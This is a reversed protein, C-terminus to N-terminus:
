GKAKFKKVASGQQQPSKKEQPSSLNNQKNKIPRRRKKSKKSASPSSNNAKFAVNTKITKRSANVGPVKDKNLKAKKKGNKDVKLNELSKKGHQSKLSVERKVPNKKDITQRIQSTKQPKKSEIEDQMQRLEQLFSQEAEELEDEDTSSEYLNKYSKKNKKQLDKVKDKNDIQDVELELEQEEEDEEEEEDDDAEEGEEEKELEKENESDDEEMNEDEEDSENDTDDDELEEDEYEEQKKTGKLEKAKKKKVNEKIPKTVVTGDKFVKVMCNPYTTLEGEVADEDEKVVEQKPAEVLNPSKTSIYLPFAISKTTKIVVSRINNHGGPFYTQNCMTKLIAKINETLQDPEMKYHGFKVSKSLGTGGSVISLMRIAKAISSKVKSPSGLIVPIPRKKAPFSKFLNPKINVLKGEILFLDFRNALKMGEEYQTHEKLAHRWPMIETICSVGCKRLLNKTEDILDEPDRTKKKKDTIFLCIDSNEPLPCHPVWIKTRESTPVKVFNVQLFFPAHVGFIENRERPNDDVFKILAKVANKLTISHVLGDVDASKNVTKRLAITPSAKGKNTLQKKNKARVTAKGSNDKPSKLSAQKLAKIKEQKNGLPTAHALDNKNKKISSKKDLYQEIDLGLQVEPSTKNGKIKSSPSNQLQDGTKLGAKESQKEVFQLGETTSETNAKRKFPSLNTQKNANLINANVKASFPSISKKGSFNNFKKEKFPTNELKPTGNVNEDANILVFSKKGSNNFKKEKFPIYELKPTGNLKKDANGLVSFKVKKSSDSNKQIFGSRPTNLKSKTAPTSPKPTKM